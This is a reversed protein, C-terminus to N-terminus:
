CKSPTLVVKGLIPLGDEPCIEKSKILKGSSDYCNPDTDTSTTTETSKILEQGTSTSTKLCLKLLDVRNNDNEFSSYVPEELDAVPAGSVRLENSTLKCQLTNLISIKIEPTQQSNVMEQYKKSITLRRLAKELSQIDSVGSSQSQNEINSQNHIDLTPQQQQCPDVEIFEFTNHGKFIHTQFKNNRLKEEDDLKTDDQRCFKDIGYTCILIIIRKKIKIYEKKNEEQSIATLKEQIPVIWEQYKAKLQENLQNLENPKGAEQNQQNNLLQDVKEKVKKQNTVSSEILQKINSEGFEQKSNQVSTEVTSLLEEQRDILQQQQKSLGDVAKLKTLHGELIPQKEKLKELYTRLSELEKLKDLDSINVKSNNNLKRFGIVNYLGRSNDDPSTIMIHVMNDEECDLSGWLSITVNDCTAGGLYNKRSNKIKKKLQKKKSFALKRVM